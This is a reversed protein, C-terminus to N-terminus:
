GPRPDSAELQGGRAASGLYCQGADATAVDPLALELEAHVRFLPGVGVIIELVEGQATTVQMKGSRARPPTCRWPGRPAQSVTPLRFPGPICRLKLLVSGM